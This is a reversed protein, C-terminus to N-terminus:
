SPPAQQLQAWRQPTYTKMTFAHISTKMLDGLAANVLRHQELLMKGAFAESVIVADLKHGDCEGVNRIELHTPALKERIAQEVAATVGASEM